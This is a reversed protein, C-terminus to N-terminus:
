ILITVNLCIRVIDTAEDTIEQVAGAMGLLEGGWAVERLRNVAAQFASASM